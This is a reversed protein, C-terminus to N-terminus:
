KPLHKEVDTETMHVYQLTQSSSSHMLHHQVHGLNGGNLLIERGCSHRFMHPHSEIGAEKGAHVVRKYIRNGTMRRWTKPVPFLPDEQSGHDNEKLGEIYVTLLASTTGDISVYSWKDGKANAVHIKGDQVDQVNLASLSARRIGSVFALRMLVVDRFNLFPNAYLKVAQERIFYKPEPRPGKKAYNRQYPTRGTCIREWEYAWYFFKKLAKKCKFSTAQSWNRNKSLNNCLQDATKDDTVKALLDDNLERYLLKLNHLENDASNEKEKTVLWARYKEFVTQWKLPNIDM